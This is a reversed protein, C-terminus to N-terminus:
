SLPEPEADLSALAIAGLVVAGGALALVLLRGRWPIARGAALTASFDVGDAVVAAGLWPRLADADHLSRLTGAGIVLDRAGLARALVASAPRDADGGIWPGLARRPDLIAGAGIAIRGIATFRALTRASM